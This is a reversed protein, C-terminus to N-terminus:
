HSTELKLVESSSFDNSHLFFAEISIVFYIVDLKVRGSLKDKGFRQGQFTQHSRNPRRPGSTIKGADSVM